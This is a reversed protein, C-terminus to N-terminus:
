ITPHFPLEPDFRLKKLHTAVATIVELSAQEALAAQRLFSLAALAERHIQRASFVALTEEAMQKLEATKGREAHLAIVELSVLAADYAAGEALFGEGAARLHAEAERTQGLGRAIKGAVWHYRSQAPGDAFRAYLPRAHIFLGHAEMFRGAEALATILNHHAGWLLRPEREADILELAQHLLPISREPTGAQEYVATVSLLVGGMRNTEGVERYIRFARFLLREAEAFRRQDRWLSARLEFLLARELVDGTGQRLHTLAAAFAEEAGRPEFQIRRANGLFGWARARLDEIQAAGYYTTDLADALSLALRALSEAALPEVQCRERTHELLRELFGWTQFRRQHRILMERREPPQEMLEALRAAAEAREAALSQAHVLVRREAAAIAPGYEAARGPWPVVEALRGAFSGPRRDVVADLRGRCRACEALHKMLARHEPSLSSALEQLLPPRPHIKV